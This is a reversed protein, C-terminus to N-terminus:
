VVDKRLLIPVSAGAPVHSLEPAVVVFCNAKAM